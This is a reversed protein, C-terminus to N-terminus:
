LKLGAFPSGVSPAPSALRTMSQDTLSPTAIPLIPVLVSSRRCAAGVIVAPAVALKMPPAVATASSLAIPMKSTSLPPSRSPAVIAIALPRTLPSVSIKLGCFPM